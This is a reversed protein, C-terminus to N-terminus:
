TFTERLRKLMASHSDITQRLVFGKLPRLTRVTVQERVECGASVPHVSTRNDVYVM